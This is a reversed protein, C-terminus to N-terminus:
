NFYLGSFISLTELYGRFIIKENKVAVLVPFGDIEFDKVDKEHIFYTKLDSLNNIKLLENARATDKENKYVNVIIFEVNHNNENKSKFAKYKPFGKICVSCTNNWFDVVFVKNNQKSLNITDTDNFFVVESKIEKNKKGTLNKFNVYQRNIQALYLSSILIIILMAVSQKALSAVSKKEYLFLGLGFSVMYSILLFNYIISNIGGNYLTISIALVWYVVFVLKKNIDKLYKSKTFVFRGYIFYLFCTILGDRLGDHEQLYYFKISPLFLVCMLQIFVYFFSLIFFALIIKFIDRTTKNLLKM